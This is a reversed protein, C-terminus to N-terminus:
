SHRAPIRYRPTTRRYVWVHAPPLNWLARGTRMGKIALSHSLRKTIPPRLSYTYQIFKGEPQLLTFIQKFIRLRTHQRMNLLPLSSVVNDIRDIESRHLLQKLRAADGEMVRLHPFQQSLEQALIRDKEILLLQEPKIGRTLLASTVAGTGAGLEITIGTGRHTQDAMISTLGNSSPLIAGVQM